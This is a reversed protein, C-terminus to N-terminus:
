GVVVEQPCPSPSSSLVEATPVCCAGAGAAATASATAASALEDDRRAKEKEEEEQEEREEEAAGALFVMSSPCLLTRCAKLGLAYIQRRYAMRFGYCEQMTWWIGNDDGDGSGGGVEEGGGEDRGTQPQDDEEACVREKLEHRTPVLIVRTRQEFSVSRTTRGDDDSSNNISSSSSSTASTTSSCMSDEALSSGSGPQRKAAMAALTPAAPQLMSRGSSSTNRHTCSAANPMREDHSERGDGGCGCRGGSKSNSRRARGCMRRWQQKRSLM